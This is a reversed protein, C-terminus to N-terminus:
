GPRRPRRRRLRDTRHEAPRPGPRDDPEGGPLRDHRRHQRDDDPERGGPHDRPEVEDPRRNRSLRSVATNTSGVTTIPAANRANSGSESSRVTHATIPAWTTNLRATTTRVTPVTHSCRGASMSSAAAVSPAEGNTTNRSIVRGSIRGATVAAAAIMKRNVNVENPTIRTRPAGPVRVISTSTHRRAVCSPWTSWAATSASSWSTSGRGGRRRTTPRPGGDSAPARVAAM